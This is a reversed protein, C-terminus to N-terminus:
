LISQPKNLIWKQDSLIDSNQSKDCPMLYPPDVKEVSEKVLKALMSLMKSKKMSSKEKTDSKETSSFTLCKASAVNRLLGCDIDDNTLEEFTWKQEDQFNCPLFVAELKKTKNNFLPEICNIGNRLEM